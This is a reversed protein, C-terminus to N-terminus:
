VNLTDISYNSVRCTSAKRHHARGQPTREDTCTRVVGGRGRKGRASHAAKLQKPENAWLACVSLLSGQGRGTSRRKGAGEWAGGRKEAVVLGM